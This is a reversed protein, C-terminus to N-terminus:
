QKTVIKHIYSKNRYVKVIYDGSPFSSFDTLEISFANVEKKGLVLDGELAYVEVSAIPDDLAVSHIRFDRNTPNPFVLVSKIATIGMDNDVGLKLDCKALCEEDFPDCACPNPQAHISQIGLLLM